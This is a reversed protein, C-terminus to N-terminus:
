SRAAGRFREMVEPRSGEGEPLEFYSRTEYRFTKALVNTPFMRLLDNYLKVSANYTRRAAAIQAEVENLARQLQQFNHSAKLEPYSEATALLQNLARGIQREIEAAQEPSVGGRMAQARLRTVEELVTSEHELYRQVSDVLSPILDWRKKLMVGIGAFTEDVQNKAHVITNFAWALLAASGAAIWLGEVGSMWLGFLLLAGGLIWISHMTFGGLGARGTASGLVCRGTPPAAQLRDPVQARGTTTTSHAFPGTAQATALDPM